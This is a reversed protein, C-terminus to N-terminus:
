PWITAYSSFDQATPSLVRNTGAPPNRGARPGELRALEALATDGPPRNAKRRCAHDTTFAALVAQQLAAAHQPSRVTQGAGAPARRHTAVVEGTPSLIRLLAEGVRCVVTVTRGAHAPPVSCHDAEFAALAPRSAKREVAIVAPYVTVDAPQVIETLVGGTPAPHLFAVQDVRLPTLGYHQNDRASPDSGWERPGGRSGWPPAGQCAAM